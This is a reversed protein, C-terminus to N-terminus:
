FITDSFKVYIWQSNCGAELAEAKTKFGSKTIWKRKGDQPAIEFSYQYSKGRKKIIIGAM